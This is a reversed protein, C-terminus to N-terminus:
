GSKDPVLKSLRQIEKMMLRMYKKMEDQEVAVEKLKEELPSPADLFDFKLIDIDPLDLSKLYLVSDALSSRQLETVKEGDLTASTILVKLNSSRLKILRKMLGMLIDTNLSKEHAEDLIIVSYQKLEPDSLNERLLVGDTLYKIRTRELTKDEFRIAYGVEDGLRVYLEQAVRKASNCGQTLRQTFQLILGQTIRSDICSRPNANNTGQSQIKKKKRSERNHSAKSMEPSKWAERKIKIKDPKTEIKDNEKNEKV